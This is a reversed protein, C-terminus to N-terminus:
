VGSGDVCLRTNGEFTEGTKAEPPSSMDITRVGADIGVLVMFDFIIFGRM